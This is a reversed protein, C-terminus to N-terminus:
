VIETFAFFRRPYPGAIVRFFTLPQPLERRYLPERSLAPRPGSHAHETQGNAEALLVSRGTALSRSISLPEREFMGNHTRIAM